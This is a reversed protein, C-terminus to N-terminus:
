SDLHVYGLVRPHQLLETIRGAELHLLVERLADEEAAKTARIQERVAEAQTAKMVERAAKKAERKRARMADTTM